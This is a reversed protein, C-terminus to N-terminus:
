FAKVDNIGEGVVGVRKHAGSEKMGKLGAILRQKDEPQARGIVKLDSIIDNFREQESLKYSVSLEVGDDSNADNIDEVVDGVINRFEAADMAFTKGPAQYEKLSLIGADAAVAKATELHDGSILRVEIGSLPAYALTDKLDARLPDKLAVLALFTTNNDLQHIDDPKSFNNTSEKLDNFKQEAMDAYSFAMTRLSKTTMENLINDTLYSRESSDFDKLQADAGYHSQCTPIVIEPAGKIYVRVTEVLDPHKVAIISKKTNSSFPINALVFDNDFKKMMMEHVPEEADQLWKILSVETGQGKPIYFSNESMEIYASSNWVISEIIKEQIQRDLKSNQFSNKRSNLVKHNQAYFSHVEMNETTM